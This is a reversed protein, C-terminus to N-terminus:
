MGIHADTCAYEISRAGRNSAHLWAIRVEIVKRNDKEVAIHLPRAGLSGDRATLVTGAACGVRAAKAVLDELAAVADDHCSAAAQVEGASVGQLEPQHNTATM